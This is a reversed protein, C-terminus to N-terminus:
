NCDIMQIYNLIYEGKYAAKFTKIDKKQMPNLFRKIVAEALPLRSQYNEQGKVRLIMSVPIFGLQVYDACSIVYSDNTNDFVYGGIAIGRKCSIKSVTNRTDQKHIAVLVLYTREMVLAMELNDRQEKVAKVRLEPTLLEEPTSKADESSILLDPM